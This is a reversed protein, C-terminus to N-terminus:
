APTRNSLSFEVVLLVLLAAAFWPWLERRKQSEIIGSALAGDASALTLGFHEVFIDTSVRAPDSEKAIPNVIYLSDERSYFGPQDFYISPTSSGTSASEESSRSVQEVSESESEVDGVSRLRIPGEGTLGLLDSAMQQILPLYLPSTTWNSASSDASSLFWAVRGRGLTHQTLAPRQQDFWALVQTSPSIDAKLLSHFALRGLDGHQPDRFPDLMAGQPSISVIRFPMAAASEPRALRGPALTAEAWRDATAQSMQSGAFVLLRGGAKVYRELQQIMQEPILGADAVVILPQQPAASLSSGDQLYLLNTVFRRRSVSNGVLEEEGAADGDRADRVNGQNLATALFYSPSAPGAESSGPDIVLISAPDAIEIATMRRNDTSLDDNFDIDVTVRWTGVELKGFNFTVEDAQENPLNLTKKLRISRQGNNASASVPVEEATLSGYNYLTARVTLNSGPPLQTGGATVNVIALNNAATRGVDIIKVPVDRPFGLESASVMEGAMGSQQLDTILVLEADSAPRAALRDRAWSLAAFYDTGGSTTRPPKPRSTGAPIAEVHRDFWAWQVVTDAGAQNAADIGASIADDLLRGSQGPMTMSASRDVLILRLPDSDHSAREPIFPRAFLLALLAVLIMRTTLLLWRRIRRRHASDHIVEQLFQMTGFELRRVQWRSLLHVLVPIALAAMAALFGAQLLGM